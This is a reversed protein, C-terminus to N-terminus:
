QSSLLTSFSLYSYTHYSSPFLVLNEEIMNSLWYTFGLVLIDLELVHISDLSLKPFYAGFYSLERSEYCTSAM